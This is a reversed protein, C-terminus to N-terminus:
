LGVVTRYTKAVDLPVNLSELTVYLGALATGVLTLEPHLKARSRVAEEFVLQFTRRFHQIEFRVQKSRADGFHERMLTEVRALYGAEAETKWAYLEIGRATAAPDDRFFGSYLSTLRIQFDDSLPSQLRSPMWELTEETANWHFHKPRFDLPLPHNSHLCSFYAELIREGIEQRQTESLSRVSLPEPIKDVVQLRTGAGRRSQFLRAKKVTERHASESISELTAELALSAVRDRHIVRLATPSVYPVFERFPEPVLAMATKEIFSNM